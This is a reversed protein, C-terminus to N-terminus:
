SRVMSSPLAPSFFDAGFDPPVDPSLALIEEVTVNAPPAREGTTSCPYMDMDLTFDLWLDTNDPLIRRLVRIDAQARTDIAM